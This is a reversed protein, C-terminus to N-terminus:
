FFANTIADETEYIMEVDLEIVDEKEETSNNEFGDILEHKEELLISGFTVIPKVLVFLVFCCSIWNKVVLDTKFFRYLSNSKTM